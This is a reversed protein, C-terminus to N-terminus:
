KFAFGGTIAARNHISNPKLIQTNFLVECNISSTCEGDRHDIEKRGESHDQGFRADQGHRPRNHKGCGGDARREHLHVHVLPDYLTSLVKAYYISMAHIADLIDVLLM